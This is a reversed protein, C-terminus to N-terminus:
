TLVSRLRSQVQEYCLLEVIGLTTDWVEEFRKVRYNKRYLVKRREYPSFSFTLGVLSENWSRGLRQNLWWRNEPNSSRRRRPGRRRLFRRNTGELGSLVPGSGRVVVVLRLDSRGDKVSTSLTVSNLLYMVSTVKSNEHTRTVPVSFSLTLGM